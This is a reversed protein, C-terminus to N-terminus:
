HYHPKNDRRNSQIGAPRHFVIVGQKVVEAEGNLGLVVGSVTQSGNGAAVSEKALPKSSHIRTRVRPSLAPVLMLQVTGRPISYSQHSHWRSSPSRTNTYQEGFPPHEVIGVKRSTDRPNSRHRAPPGLETVAPPPLISEIKKEETRKEGVV